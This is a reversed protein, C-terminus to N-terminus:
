FLIITVVFSIILAIVSFRSSTCILVRTRLWNAIIERAKKTIRYETVNLRHLLNKARRRDKNINMEQITTNLLWKRKETMTKNKIFATNNPMGRDPRNNYDKKPLLRLLIKVVIGWAFYRSSVTVIQHLYLRFYFNCCSMGCIWCNLKKSITRKRYKQIM